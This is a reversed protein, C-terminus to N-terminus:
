SKTNSGEPLIILEVRRNKSHTQADQGLQIPSKAGYSATEIRKASIGQMRLFKAIENARKTAMKQNLAAKGKADAHGEVRITAQPNQKLYSAQQQLLKKQTPNIQTKGSDFLLVTRLNEQKTPQRYIDQYVLKTSSTDNEAEQSSTMPTQYEPGPGECGALGIAVIGTLISTIALNSYRM